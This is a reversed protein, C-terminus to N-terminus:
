QNEMATFSNFSLRGTYFLIEVLQVKQEFEGVLGKINKASQYKIWAQSLKNKFDQQLNKITESSAKAKSVEAWSRKAGSFGLNLNYDFKLMAYAETQAGHVSGSYHYSDYNYGVEASIKPLMQEAFIAKAREENIVPDNQENVININATAEALNLGEDLSKPILNDSFIITEWKDIRSPNVILVSELDQLTLGIQMDAQIELNELEIKYQEVSTFDPRFHVMREAANRKENNRRILNEYAIISKRALFYRSLITKLCNIRTQYLQNQNTTEIQSASRIKASNAGFDWLTQNIAVKSRIPKSVESGDKGDSLRYTTKSKGIEAESKLTPMWDSKAASKLYQSSEFNSKAISLAPCSDVSKQLVELFTESYACNSTLFFFICFLLNKM